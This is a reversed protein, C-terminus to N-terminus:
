FISRFVFLLGVIALPIGIPAGAITLTIAIGLVMLVVGLIGALVRGTINLILALLHWIVVFPWLFWPVSKRVEM